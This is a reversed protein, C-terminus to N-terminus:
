NKIEAGKYDINYLTSIFATLISGKWPTSDLYMSTLVDLAESADSWFPEFSEATRTDKIVRTTEVQLTEEDYTKVEAGKIYLIGAKIKATESNPEADEFSKLIELGKEAGYRRFGITIKQEKGEVDKASTVVVEAVPSQSAIFLKKAM